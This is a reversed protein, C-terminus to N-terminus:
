SAPGSGSLWGSMAFIVDPTPEFDAYPGTQGFGTISTVILHPFKKCLADPAIDTGETEKPRMSHLYIDAGRSCDSSTTEAALRDGLDLAIGRKNFNRFAFYLSSSGDPLLPKMKRSAAGEPPEVRVVDAGFDALMRGCLEGAGDTADVVRLGNLPFTADESM